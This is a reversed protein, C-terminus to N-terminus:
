RQSGISVLLLWDLRPLIAESEHNPSASFAHLSYRSDTHRQRRLGPLLPVSCFIFGPQIFALSAKFSASWEAPVGFPQLVDWWPTGVPSWTNLLALGTPCKIDLSYCWGRGEKGPWLQFMIKQLSVEMGTRVKSGHGCVLKCPQSRHSSTWWSMNVKKREWIEWSFFPSKLVPVVNDENGCSQHHCCVLTM